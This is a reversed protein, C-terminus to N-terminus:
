VEGLIKSDLNNTHVHEGAKIDATAYGIREGYKIIAAGKKVDVVAVKHNVPINSVAKVIATKGNLVFTIEGGCSISETVTVVMDNDNLLVANVM